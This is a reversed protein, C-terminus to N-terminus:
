LPTKSLNPNHPLLTYFIIIQAPDNDLIELDLDPYLTSTPHHHIKYLILPCVITHTHTHHHFFALHTLSLLCSKQNKRWTPIHITPHIKRWTKAQSPTPHTISETTHSHTSHCTKNIKKDLNKPLPYTYLMTPQLTIGM